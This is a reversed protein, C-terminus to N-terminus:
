CVTLLRAGEPNPTLLAVDGSLHYRSPRPYRRWEASSVPEIEGLKLPDVIVEMGQNIVALVRPEM